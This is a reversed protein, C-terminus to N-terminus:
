LETLKHEAFAKVSAFFTTFEDEFESYFEQLENVSTRMGSKNATRNDMQALIRGIGEITAYSTLWNREVMYPMITKTHDTLHAYNNQLSNYFNDVYVELPEDHYQTWNKALFHDYFIDVIVGAYHHYVPHLRKTSQRFVTHADTFSDIARHLWIGKEILSPFEDPKRGHIGDAM